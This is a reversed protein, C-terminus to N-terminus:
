YSVAVSRDAVKDNVVEHWNLIRLPYARAEGKRVVGIVRDNDRLFSAQAAPLFRPELIAPIGDKPPGGSLIEDPPVSHRSLDFASIWPLLFLM